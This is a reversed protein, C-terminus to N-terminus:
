MSPTAHVGAPPPATTTSPTSIGIAHYMAKSYTNPTFTGASIQAMEDMSLARFYETMTTMM